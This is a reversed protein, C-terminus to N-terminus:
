LQGEQLLRKQVRIKKSGSRNLDLDETYVKRSGEPGESSPPASGPSEEVTEHLCRCSARALCMCTWTGEDSVCVAGVCWKHSQCVCVCVCVCVHSGMHRASDHGSAANQLREASLKVSRVENECLSWRRRRSRRDRRLGGGEEQEEEIM